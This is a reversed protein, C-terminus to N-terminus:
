LSKAALRGMPERPSRYLSVGSRVVLWAIIVSTLAVMIGSEGIWISTTNSADGGLTFHNFPGQITANWSAHFLAAAWVSGTELRAHAAFTGGAMIGLMFLIASMIPYPGSAYQGSLILPLHWLGWLLGSVLVPHPVRSDILRTLMTGRWGIEEGLATIGALLPGIALTIAVTLAFRPIASMGSLGLGSTPPAAFTALGSTWALGYAVLGVALPSLWALLWPWAGGARGIRFSVDGLGQRWLLRAALGVIGPTWMLVVVELGHSEIPGGLLFIRTQIAWSISFTLALYLALQKRARIVLLDNQASPPSEKEPEVVYGM